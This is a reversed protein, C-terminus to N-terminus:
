FVTVWSEVFHSFINSRLHSWERYQDCIQISGRGVTEWQGLKQLPQAKAARCRYALSLVATLQCNMVLHAPFFFLFCFVGCNACLLKLGLPNQYWILFPVTGLKVTKVTRHTAPFIAQFYLRIQQMLNFDLSTFSQSIIPLM